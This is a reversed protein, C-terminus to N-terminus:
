RAAAAAPASAPRAEAATQVAISDIIGRLLPKDTEYQDATLGIFNLEYTDHNAGRPVFVTITWNMPRSLKISPDDDPLARPMEGIRQQELVQAGTIPRLEVMKVSNPFRELEKKAGNVILELRAASTTPRVNLQISADGSPTPGELLVHSTGSLTKLGWGKPAQVTLPLEGLSVPKRPGELLEQTTPRAEAKHPKPEPQDAVLHPPPESADDCGLGVGIMGGLLVAAGCAFWKM